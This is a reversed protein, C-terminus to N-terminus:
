RVNVLVQLPESASEAPSVLLFRQGDKSVVFHNRGSASIQVDFLPKPIGSDFTAGDSKVDVAMLTAGAVFYLEKGDRRWQPESGGASSIQWKGGSQTSGPTFAQVYVESRGTENSEYALWRANPSVACNTTRFQTKMLPVPKHDGTFPMAYLHRENGPQHNYLLYKGDSSWAELNKQGDKGVLLLQEPGSGDAPKVYIDREGKRNSTFAIRTGDPSWVPNLDDAPDFTLRSKTGRVLDIVWIDRTKAQPDMIGVALRKEDPSLAPNSFDAPERVLGLKKGSRDFWQLVSQAAGTGQRWVVTGNLSAALIAGPVAGMQEIRDAVPHPEDRLSLSKFDFTQVMLVSDRVFLLQGTQLYVAQANTKLVLKRPGGDLSAAYVGQSEPKANESFYIYHKGDPLFQPWRQSVEGKELAGLAKPEGGAASVRHLIRNSSYVIVGEPSWAAASYTPAAAAILTVPTGGAADVKMLSQGSFYGLQRGDASWFPAFVVGPVPVRIAAPSDLRRVFLVNTDGTASGATFAIRQGDPSVAPLDYWHFTLQDPVPIQFRVASVSPPKERLHAVTFVLSALFMASLAAAIMWPLRERSGRQAAIVAPVGAQSGAGAIWQLESLLDRASQWRNDPSKALCKRILRDLAPSAMPQVASVPPPETSMLAAILSAQSPGQFAKRWTIMEYLTAGFAFIDSRADSEKGELQEPSMYQFTGLITGETTLTQAITPLSTNTGAPAAEVAMKALGFDLLKAGTSTLMINAPKLDRHIIGKRHAVDLAGAVQIGIELAEPLQLPGNGLRAELSEGELHEMVLFDLSNEHGIDYLACIHPHNLSSIARAEREFRDNFRVACIKLAVTRDLRTDRAKYVEGMGGAGIPAIIEYPGLRTKAALPM